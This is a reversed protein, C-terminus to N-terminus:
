PIQRALRRYQRFRKNKTVKFVIFIIMRSLPWPTFVAPFLLGFHGSPAGTRSSHSYLLLSTCAMWSLEAPAIDGVHDQYGFVLIDRQPFAGVPGIVDGDAVADGLSKQDGDVAVGGLVVVGGSPLYPRADAVRLGVVICGDELPFREAAEGGAEPDTAALFRVEPDQLVAGTRCHERLVEEVVEPLVIVEQHAVLAEAPYDLEM